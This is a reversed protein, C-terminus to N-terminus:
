KLLPRLSEVKESYHQPFTGFIYTGAVLNDVGRKTLENANSDDVGGDVQIQFTAKLQKRRLDLAEVKRYTNAIFKQGGFGPNVSMLLVLDLQELLYDPIIDINTSPNLSVGVSPYLRKVKNITSDHHHITEYHFTLNHIHLDQLTDIYFAPNTVMLHVDLPHKSIKALKEIIPRGFTLNPVFHGDMVDLHFWIDKMPFFHELESQLNLFDAALLSPSIIIKKM